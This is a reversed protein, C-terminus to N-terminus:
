PRFEIGPSAARDSDTCLQVVRGRQDEAANSPVPGTTAYTRWWGVRMGGTLPRDDGIEAWRQEALERALDVDHTRRVLVTAWRYRPYWLVDARPPKAPRMTSGDERTIVERRRRTTPSTM